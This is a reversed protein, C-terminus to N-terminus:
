YRILLRATAFEPVSHSRSTPCASVVADQPQASTCCNRHASRCCPNADTVTIVHALLKQLYTLAVTILIGYVFPSGPEQITDGSTSDTDGFHAEAVPVLLVGGTLYVALGPVVPILFM